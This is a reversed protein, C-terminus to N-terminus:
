LNLLGNSSLKCHVRIDYESSETQSTGEIITKIFYQYNM